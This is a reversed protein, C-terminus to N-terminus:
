SRSIRGGPSTLMSICHKLLTQERALQQFGEASGSYGCNNHTGSPCIRLHSPTKPTPSDSLLRDGKRPPLGPELESCHMAFLQRSIIIRILQFMKGSCNLPQVFRLYNVQARPPSCPAAWHTSSDLPSTSVNRHLVAWGPTHDATRLCCMSTILIHLCTDM